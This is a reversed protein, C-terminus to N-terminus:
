EKIVFRINRAKGASMIAEPTKIKTWHISFNDMLYDKADEISAVEVVTEKKEDEISAVKPADVEPTEIKKTNAPMQEAKDEFTRMLRIRGSKFYDSKEIVDQVIRDSTVFKAPSVGYGTLTGGKFQVSLTSKGFPILAHFEIM